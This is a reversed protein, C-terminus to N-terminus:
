KLYPRVHSGRSTKPTQYFASEAQFNEIPEKVFGNQTLRMLHKFGAKKAREICLDMQCDLYNRDHCDTDIVLMGDHDALYELIEDSPYATRRNGRAVAGTNMEFILGKEIGKQVAHLAAALYWPDDFKFYEEDENFKSILDIHGVIDFTQTDMMDEVSQYYAEVMKQISGDYMEDRIQEFLATNDDVPEVRGDKCMYHVSGIKYDLEEDEFPAMSDQEIGMFIEIQGKYKEKAKRIAQKYALQNESSMSTPALPKNTGHGSFGLTTFGKDLATQIMEEVTDKGHDYSTHTHLNQKLMTKRSGKAKM